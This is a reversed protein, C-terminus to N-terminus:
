SSLIAVAADTIVDRVTAADLDTFELVGAQVAGLASAARITHDLDSGTGRALVDRIGVMAARVVRVSESGAGTPDDLIVGVLLRQAVLADLYAEIVVRLQAPQRLDAGAAQTAVERLGALLPSVLERMLGEVDGFDAQLEAEDVGAARAVDDLTTLAMGRTRLCVLAVDAVRGWRSDPDM